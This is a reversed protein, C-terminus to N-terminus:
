KDGKQEILRVGEMAALMLEVMAPKTRASFLVRGKDDLLTWTLGFHQGVSLTQGVAQSLTAALKNIDPMTRGKQKNKINPQCNGRAQYGFRM